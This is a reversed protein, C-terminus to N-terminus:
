ADANEQRPEFYFIRTFRKAQELNHTIWLVGAGTKRVENELLASSEPDLSASPEDLLIYDPHQALVISLRARAAEGGSLSTWPANFKAVPLGLREAVAASAQPLDHIKVARFTAIYGALEYPTKKFGASYRDQSCYLVKARWRDAGLDHLSKGDAKITGTKPCDLGSICRLLTTKGVGSPGSLALIEGREVSLSVNNLVVAGDFVQTCREITLPM